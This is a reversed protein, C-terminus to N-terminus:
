FGSSLTIRHSAGLAYDFPVFAYDLTWGSVTFGAGATFDRCEDTFHMGGRLSFWDLPSYEVGTAYDTEYDIEHSVKATVEASGYPLSFGWSAGVKVATPLDYARDAMTVKPGINALVAALRFNEFPYVVLGASFAMGTSTELWLKERIIKMSLGIDFIGARISSGLLFSTDWSSFTCLPEGTAEDRMEIDGTYIFDGALSFSFDGAGFVWALYNRTTNGIWSNHGAAIGGTSSSLLAPNSFVALRDASLLSTGGLAAARAGVDINLFSYAKSGAGQYVDDAFAFSLM